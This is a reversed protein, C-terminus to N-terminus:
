KPLTYGIGRLTKIRDNGIKRRLHHIHVELANSEIEEGWGYLAQELQARSMVRGANELLLQLISYERGSLSVPEGDLTVTHAAPELHLGGVEISPVARGGARRLLARIRAALEDLDIPKILYDDAGADLGAIKEPTGDRATLILIPLDRGLARQRRLVDLGSLKPLGLDLVVLSFPEAALAHEAAAGDHVWDATFGAQALGAKLGDGLTPDDEVLLIRM